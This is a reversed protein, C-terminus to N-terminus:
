WAHTVVRAGFTGGFGVPGCGAEMIILIMAGSRLGPPTM